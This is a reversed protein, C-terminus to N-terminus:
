LDREYRGEEIEKLIRDWYPHLTNFRAVQQQYQFKLGATKMYVGSLKRILSLVKERLQTPERKELGIFYQEYHSKLQDLDTTLQKIDKIIEDSQKLASSEEPVPLPM